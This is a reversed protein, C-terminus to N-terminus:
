SMQDTWHVLGWIQFSSTARAVDCAVSARKHLGADRVRLQRFVAVIVGVYSLVVRISPWISSYLAGDLPM